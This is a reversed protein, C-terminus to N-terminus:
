VIWHFQWSIPVSAASNLLGAPSLQAWNLDLLRLATKKQLSSINKSYVDGVDSVHWYRFRGLWNVPIVVSALGCWIRLNIYRYACQMAHVTRIVKRRMVWKAKCKATLGWQVPKFKLCHLATRAHVSVLHEHKLSIAYYIFYYLFKITGM